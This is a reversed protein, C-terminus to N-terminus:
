GGCARSLLNQATVPSPAFLMRQWGPVLRDVTLFLALGEDQSWYRGRLKQLALQPAINREGILWQYSVWQALGETTLSLEDVKAWYVSSGTFYRARRRQLLGLASCASSRALADNPAAAAAFLRDREAEYDRRYAANSQFAEQVSDDSIGPPLSERKNLAPFSLEPTVASQYAHSLEHLLVGELFWELPIEIKPAVGRWISPLSMVVFNESSDTATNFANPGPPIRAGNPLEIEGRHEAIAWGGKGDARPALTYACRADYFMVLPLNTRGAKLHKRAVIDWGTLADALWTRDEETAQCPAQASLSPVRATANILSCGATAMTVAAISVSVSRM